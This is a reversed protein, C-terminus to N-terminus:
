TSAVGVTVSSECHRWAVRVIVAKQQLARLLLLLKLELLLGTRVLLLRAVVLAHDLRAADERLPREAVLLVEQLGCSGHPSCHEMGASGLLLLHLLLNLLLLLSNVLQLLLLLVILLLLLLLLLLLVM